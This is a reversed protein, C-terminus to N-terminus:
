QRVIIPSLTVPSASCFRPLLIKLLRQKCLLGTNGYDLAQQRKVESAKYDLVDTHRFVFVEVPAVVNEQINRWSRCILEKLEKLSKKKRHCQSRVLAM